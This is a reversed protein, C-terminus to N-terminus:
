KKKKKREADKKRNISRLDSVSQRMDNSSFIRKISSSDVNYLLSLGRNAGVLDVFEQAKEWGVIKIFRWAVEHGGVINSGSSFKGYDIARETYERTESRIKASM